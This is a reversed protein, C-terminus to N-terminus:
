SSEQFSKEMAQVRKGEKLVKNKPLIPDLVLDGRSLGKQVEFMMRGRKGIRIPHFRAKGGEEVLVGDRGERQLVVRAPVRLVHERRALEVWLDVRQGFVLRKPLRQFRVDVLLERTERDVQSGIRAVDGKYVTDPDSRLIIRAAQGLKLDKLYTEDMWVSAWVTQTSALRLVLSGPVAVDGVGMPRSLVIGDFPSRVVTRALTTKARDLRLKAAMVAQKGEIQAAKSRALEAMAVKHREVASDLSEQSAAGSEVLPQTRRLGDEAGKLVAQAREIEAALRLLTSEALSVEQQALDVEAKFTSSDIEALEQGKKVRDGQDVRVRVLRATVEFSVDITELSEISGTGLAEVLVAGQDVRFARVPISRLVNWYVVLFLGVLVLTWTAM